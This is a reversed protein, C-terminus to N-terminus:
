KEATTLQRFAKIRMLQKYTGQATVEGDQIMIILDCQKITEVRHTVFIITKKDDQWSEYINSLIKSETKKDLSSTAEDLILLSPSRYLARAIIIRQRQGGSINAGAETINSNEQQPLKNVVARLEALDIAQQLAVNDIEENEATLAINEAVTGEVLILNQTVYGISDQWRRILKRNNILKGDVEFSGKLPQIRGTILRLLTTKGGGSVGCIGVTMEKPIVLNIKNLALENDPQQPYRYSVNKVAITKDFPLPNKVHAEYSMPTAMAKLLQSSVKDYSVVGTKLTMYQSFLNNVQPLLRYIIILFATAFQIDERGSVLIIYICVSVMTSYLILETVPPFIMGIVSMKLNAMQITRQIKAFSKAFLNEKGIMQIYERAGVSNLLKKHKEYRGSDVEISYRRVKNQTILISGILFVSGGLGALLVLRPDLFYLIVMATTILFLINIISFIPNIFSNIVSPLRSNINNVVESTSAEITNSQQNIYSYYLKTTYYINLEIHIRQTAYSGLLFCARAIMLICISSIGLVIAFNYDTQTVIFDYFMKLWKNNQVSDAVIVYNIFPIISLSGILYILNTIISFTHVLLIKTRINGDIAKIFAYFRTAYIYAASWRGLTNTFIRKAWQIARDRLM